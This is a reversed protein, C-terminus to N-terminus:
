YNDCVHGQKKDGDDKAFNMQPMTQAMEEGCKKMAQMGEDNMIEKGYAMAREQAGDRDGSKCLASIEAQLAEGQKAMKEMVAPDIQSVCAQMKQAQEMMKQMQEETMNPYQAHAAIPILALFALHRLINKNM